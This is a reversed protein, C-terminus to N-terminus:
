PSAHLLARSKAPIDGSWGARFRVRNEGSQRVLADITTGLQPIADCQVTEYRRVAIEFSELFRGTDLLLGEHRTLLGKVLDLQYNTEVLDDVSAVTWPRELARGKRGGFYADIEDALRPRTASTALERRFGAWDQRAGVTAAFNTFVGDADHLFAKVRADIDDLDRRLDGADRSARTTFDLVCGIKAFAQEKEKRGLSSTFLSALSLATSVVPNKLLIDPLSFGGGERERGGSLAALEARFAPSNLPNAAADFAALSSALGTTYDLKETNQLLIRLVELGTHYRLSQLDFRAEIRRRAVEELLAVRASDRRLAATLDALTGTRGVPASLGSLQQELAAFDRRQRTLLDDSRRELTALRDDRAQVAPRDGQQAAAAALPLAVLFASLLRTGPM